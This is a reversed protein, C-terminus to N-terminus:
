RRKHRKIHFVYLTFPSSATGAQECMDRGYKALRELDKKVVKEVPALQVVAHTTMSAAKRKTSKTTITTVGAHLASQTAHVLRSYRIIWIHSPTLASIYTLDYPSCCHRAAGSDLVHAHIQYDCM